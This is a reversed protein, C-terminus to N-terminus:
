PDDSPNPDNPGGPNGPKPKRNEDGAPQSARGPDSPDGPNGDDGGGGGGGHGGPQNPPKPDDEERITETIVKTITGTAAATHVPVDHSSGLRSVKDLAKQIEQFRQKSIEIEMDKSSTTNSWDLRMKERESQLLAFQNALGAQTM